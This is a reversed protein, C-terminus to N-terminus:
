SKLDDPGAEVARLFETETLRKAKAEQERKEAEKSIAIDDLYELLARYSDYPLLVAEPRRYAGVIVPEASMQRERFDKLLSPLQARADRTSLIDAPTTKFKM